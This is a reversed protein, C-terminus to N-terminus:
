FSMSIYRFKLFVIIWNFLLVKLKFIYKGEVLQEFATDPIQHFTLLKRLDACYPCLDNRGKPPKIHRPTISRFTSRSLPIEKYLDSKQYEKYFHSMCCSVKRKPVAEVTEGKKAKKKSYGTAAINLYTM